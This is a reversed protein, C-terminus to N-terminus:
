LRSRACRPRMEPADRACRVQLETEELFRGGGDVIEGCWRVTVEDLEAPTEWGGGKRLQRKTIKGGELESIEYIRLLHLDYEVDAGGPVGRSADGAAGFALEAKVTAVAREGQRMTMVAKEVGGPFAGAGITVLRATESWETDFPM